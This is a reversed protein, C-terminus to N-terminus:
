APALECDQSSKCLANGNHNQGQHKGSQDNEKAHEKGTRVYKRAIGYRYAKGNLQIYRICFALADDITYEDLFGVGLAV